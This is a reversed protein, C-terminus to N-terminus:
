RREELYFSLYKILASSSDKEDGEVSFSDYSDKEDDEDSFSDYSDKEDDEDSFSDYSDKEDDEDSFSDYSDKEYDEDFFNNKILYDALYLLFNSYDSIDNVIYTLKHLFRLEYNSFTEEIMNALKSNLAKDEDCNYCKKIYTIGLMSDAVYEKVKDFEVVDNFIEFYNHYHKALIDTSFESKMYEATRHYFLTQILQKEKQNSKYMELLQKDSANLVNFIQETIIRRSSVNPDFQRSKYITKHEVEGWVNNFLSKIQIEFNYKKDYIGTLKYISHGNNQKTNEQFNLQIKGSFKSKIFYKKLYEYIFSEDKIFFCNIRYGILDPLNTCILNQNQKKDNKITWSKIYEKRYIKESFSKTSKIRSELNDFIRQEPTLNDKLGELFEKLESEIKLRIQGLSDKFNKDDFAEILLRAEDLISGGFLVRLRQKVM